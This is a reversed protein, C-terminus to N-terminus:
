GGIHYMEIKRSDPGDGQAGSRLESYRDARRQWVASLMHELEGDSAGNRLHSRLDTGQTAFLCTYLSGDASL